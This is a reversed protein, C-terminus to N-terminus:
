YKASSARLGMATRKCTGILERLCDSHSCTIRVVEELSVGEDTQVIEPFLWSIRARADSLWKSSNRLEPFVLALNYLSLSHFLNHNHGRFAKGTVYGDLVQGHTELSKLVEGIESPTMVRALVQPYLSM